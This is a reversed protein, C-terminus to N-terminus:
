KFYTLAELYDRVKHIRGEELDKVLNTGDPHVRFEFFRSKAQKRAENFKKQLATSM